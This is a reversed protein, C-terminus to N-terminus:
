FPISMAQHVGDCDILDVRKSAIKFGGDALRLIHSYRGSFVRRSEERFESMLFASEVTCERRAPELATVDVNTVLHTTRPMPALVHARPHTLRRVRMALLPLDEYVISAVARPDTQGPRSPVWYVADPAFLALWEDFRGADLLRAELFLFREIEHRREAGVTMPDDVPAHDRLSSM